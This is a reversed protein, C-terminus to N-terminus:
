VQIQQIYRSLIKKQLRRDIGKKKRERLNRKNNNRNQKYLLGKRSQPLFCTVMSPPSPKYQSAFPNEFFEIKKRRKLYGGGKGKSSVTSIISGDDLIPGQLNVHLDRRGEGWGLGRGM